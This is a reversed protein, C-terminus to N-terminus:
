DCMYYPPQFIQLHLCSSGQVVFWQLWLLPSSRKFQIRHLSLTLDCVRVKNRQTLAESCQLLFTQRQHHAHNSSVGNSMIFQSILRVVLNYTNKRKEGKQYHVVIFSWLAYWGHPPWSCSVWKVSESYSLQLLTVLSSAPAGSNAGGCAWVTSNTAHAIISCSPVMVHAFIPLPWGCCEWM